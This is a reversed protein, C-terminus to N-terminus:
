ILKLIADVFSKGDAIIAITSEYVIKPDIELYLHVLVNRLKVFDILREALTSDIIKHNAVVRLVESYSKPAGWHNHAVLHTCIDIIAQGIVQLNREAISQMDKDALFQDETFAEIRRLSTVRELILDLRTKVVLPDVAVIAGGGIIAELLRSYLVGM